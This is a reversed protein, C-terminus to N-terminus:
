FIGVAWWPHINLESPDMESTQLDMEASDWCGAWLFIFHREADKWEARRSAMLKSILQNEISPDHYKPFKPNQCHGSRNKLHWRVFPTKFFSLYTATGNEFYGCNRKQFTWSKWASECIWIWAGGLAVLSSISGCPFGRQRYYYKTIEWLIECDNPYIENTEHVSLWISTGGEKSVGPVHWFDPVLNRFMNQVWTGSLQPCTLFDPVLNKFIHQVWTGVLRLCTLFM